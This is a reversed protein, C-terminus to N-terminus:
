KLVVRCLVVVYGGGCRGLSILFSVSSSIMLCCLLVFGVLHRFVVALRIIGINWGTLRTGRSSTFSWTSLFVLSSRCQLSYTFTEKNSNTATLLDHATSSQAPGPGPYASRSGIAVRIIRPTRAVFQLQSMEPITPLQGLHPRCLILYKISLEPCKKSPGGSQHCGRIGEIRSWRPFVM